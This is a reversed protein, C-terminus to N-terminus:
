KTQRGKQSIVDNRTSIFPLALIFYVMYAGETRMSANYVIILISTLAMIASLQCYVVDKNKKEVLAGCFVAIFFGFVMCLGVIGTELYLFATSFWNYRIYSYAEYFPTTLFSFNSTECNGLGLGFLQKAPTDLFMESIQPITTLRNVQEESAYGGTSVSDFLSEFSVFLDGFHPYIRLLMIIAIPLLIVCSVIVILKRWSFSTVLISLLVIFLFEFYFFKLEAFTSIILIIVVKSLYLLIKERKNLFYVTSKISIIVFFINLFGNCGKETGFLGGLNDHMIGLAFYQFFCVAANIWFIVDFKSLIDDINDSNLFCTFIFFVIYFRFNNRFGWLYYLPSQFNFVYVLLTILFFAIPIAYIFWHKDNFQLVGYKYNKIVLVVLFIWALDIIYKVANPLPLFETLFGFAFPLFLITYILFEPQSRKRVRLQLNFNM